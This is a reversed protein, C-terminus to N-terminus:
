GTPGPQCDILTTGGALKFDNLEAEIASYNSLNPRNATKPCVLPEIWLHAHGDALAVDEIPVLGKVTRFKM